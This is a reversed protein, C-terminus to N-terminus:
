VSVRVVILGPNAKRLEVPDLKRIVEYDPEEIAHTWLPMAALTFGLLHRLLIAPLTRKM